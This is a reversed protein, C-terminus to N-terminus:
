VYKGDAEAAWADLKNMVADLTSYSIDPLSGGFAKLAENFGTEVGERIANLRGTDGGAAAIAFDVIRDSTQEVGFYGDEAVLKRAEEQSIEGIEVTSDGTAIASDIGQEKLLNVVLRRLLEYSKDAMEEVSLSGSYTNASKSSQQSSQLTVTDMAKDKSSEKEQGIREPPMPNKNVARPDVPFRNSMIKVM